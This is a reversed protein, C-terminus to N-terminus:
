YQILKSRYLANRIGLPNFLYYQGTSKSQFVWNAYNSLVPKLDKEPLEVINGGIPKRLSPKVALFVQRSHDYYLRLPAQAAVWPAAFLVAISLTIMPFFVCKEPFLMKSFEKAGWQMSRVWEDSGMLSGIYVPSVILSCYIGMGLTIWMTGHSMEYSLQLDPNEHEQPVGDRRRYRAERFRPQDWKFFGGIGSSKKEIRTAATTHLQNSLIWFKNWCRSKGRDRQTITHNSSVASIWHSHHSTPHSSPTLRALQTLEKSASLNRISYPCRPWALGTKATLM